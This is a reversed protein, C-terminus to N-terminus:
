QWAALVEIRADAGGGGANTGAAGGTGGVGVTYTYTAAPNSIIFEVYEGSGGGPSTALVGAASGGGGAGGAGTNAAASGGAGNVVGTGAGGFFPTMGGNGGPFSFTQSGGGNVMGPSGRQGSIRTIQTGTGSVGPGGGAGGSAAGVASGTGKLATWGAFSTDAAPTVGANTLLAAGGGGPGCMRVRLYLPLNGNADMPTTFTAGTGTTLLTYSPLGGGNTWLGSRYQLMQGSAPAVINADVSADIRGLAASVVLWETSAANYRLKLATYQKIQNAKFDVATAVRLPVAGTLDVNLTCAGFNAVNFIAVVEIGDTLALLALGSTLVYNTPGGTTTNAIDRQSAEIIYEPVASNYTASYEGGVKVVGAKLNVGSQFRLPAAASADVALTPSDANSVHARFKVQTGNPVSSGYGFTSAFAYASGTGTTVTVGSADVIKNTLSTNIGDIYSKNAAETGALPASLNLVRHTGMAIDGAMTGGSLPLFPGGGALGDVYQKTAAGLATTPAGSLILPGTLTGGTLPLANSLLVQGTNYSQLAANLVFASIISQVQAGASWAFASTNEQARAVTLAGTQDNTTAYVIEPNNAGDWLTLPMNFGSSFVPIQAAIGAPIHIVTDAVGISATLETLMFNAFLFQNAM